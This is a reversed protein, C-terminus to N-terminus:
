DNCVAYNITSSATVSCKSLTNSDSPNKPYSLLATITYDSGSNVQTYTYSAATDNPVQKMYVNGDDCTGAAGDFGNATNGFASGLIANFAATAPYAKCDNYYLQLSAKMSDLDSRRRTDRAEGILRVPNIAVVVIVVLLSIIAIVVMLEILTFGKQGQLSKVVKNDRLKSM